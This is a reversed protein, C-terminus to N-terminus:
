SVLWVAPGFSKVDSTIHVKELFFFIGLVSELLSKSKFSYLVSMLLMAIHFCYWFFSIIKLITSRTTQIIDDGLIVVGDENRGSVVM